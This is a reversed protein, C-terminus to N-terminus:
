CPASEMSPAKGTAAKRRRMWRNNPLAIADHMPNNWRNVPLGGGLAAREPDPGANAIQLYGVRGRGSEALLKLMSPVVPSRVIQAAQCLARIGRRWATKDLSPYPRGRELPYALVIPPLLNFMCPM